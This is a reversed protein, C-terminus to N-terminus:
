RRGERQMRQGWSKVRHLIAHNTIHSIANTANTAHLIANIANTAHLIANTAHTAHSIANTAHMRAHLLFRLFVRSDKQRFVTHSNKQRSQFNPRHAKERCKRVNKNEESNKKTKACFFFYSAPSM